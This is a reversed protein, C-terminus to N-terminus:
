LLAHACDMVQIAQAGFGGELSAILASGFNYAQIDTPSGPWTGNDVRTAVLSDTTPKAAAQLAQYRPGDHM